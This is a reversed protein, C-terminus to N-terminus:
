VRKPFIICRYTFIQDCSLLYHWASLLNRIWLVLSIHGLIPSLSVWKWSPQYLLLMGPHHSKAQAQPHCCPNPCLACFVHWPLAPYYASHLYYGTLPTKPITLLCIGKNPMFPRCSPLTPFYTLYITSSRWNRGSLNLSWEVPRPSGPFPFSCFLLMTLTTKSVM